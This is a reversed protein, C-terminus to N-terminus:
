SAPTHKTVFGPSEGGPMLQQQQVATIAEAKSWGNASLTAITSATAEQARALELPGPEIVRSALEGRTPRYATSVVGIVFLMWPVIKAVTADVQERGDPWWIAGIQQAGLALVAVIVAAVAIATRLKPPIVDLVDAFATRVTLTLDTNAM